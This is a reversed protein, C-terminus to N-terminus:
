DSDSSSSSDSGGGGGGGSGMRPVPIYLHTLDHDGKAKCTHGRDMCSQCVDWDGKKCKACHYFDGRIVMDCVNCELKPYVKVLRHKGHGECTAGQVLCDRCIDYDGGQCKACHAYPGYVGRDCVNCDLNTGM